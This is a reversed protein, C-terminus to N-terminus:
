PGSTWGSVSSSQNLRLAQMTRGTSRDRDPRHQRADPLHLARGAAQALQARAGTTSRDDFAIIDGPRADRAEIAETVLVDGAAIAPQMSDSVDIM